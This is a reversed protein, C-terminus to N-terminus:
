MAQAGLRHRAAIATEYGHRVVMKARDEDCMDAILLLNDFKGREIQERIAPDVRDAPLMDGCDPCRWAVVRDCDIVAVRRSWRYPASYHERINEPIPGGDWDAGCYACITPQEAM